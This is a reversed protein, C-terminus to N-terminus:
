LPYCGDATRVRQARGFLTVCGKIFHRQNKCVVRKVGFDFSKKYILDPDALEFYRGVVAKQPM